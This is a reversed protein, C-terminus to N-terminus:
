PAPSQFAFEHPINGYLNAAKFLTTLANLRASTDTPLPIQGAVHHLPAIENDQTYHGPHNTILLLSIPDKGGHAARIRDLTRLISPHLVSGPQPSLLQNADEFPLNMDLFVVLPHAPKKDVADNLLREFSLNLRDSRQRVGPRGLVGPRHRSKAEVSLKQGTARYTATFEAHRTLIDSENEHEVAFGARLCTAEAFLEHRAGQFQDIHKLRHLLRNDLGGNNDVVFLDYAFTMYALLPGTFVGAQSGDPQRPQANLYELGKLAWQMVPHRLEPPKVGECQRWHQGFVSPVYEWLVDTFYKSKPLRLFKGGIPVFTRGNIGFATEPRVQGYLQLREIHERYLRSLYDAVEAQVEPSVEKDFTPWILVPQKNTESPAGHCEIFKKSSQCPCPDDPEIVEVM